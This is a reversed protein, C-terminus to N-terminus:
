HLTFRCALWRTWASGGGAEWSRVVVSCVRLVDMELRDKRVGTVNNRTRSEERNGKMSGVMPCWMGGRRDDNLISFRLSKTRMALASVGHNSWHHHSQWRGIDSGVRIKRGTQPLEVSSVLGKNPIHDTRELANIWRRPPYAALTALIELVRLDRALDHCLTRLSQVLMHCRWRLGLDRPGSVKGINQMNSPTMVTRSTLIAPSDESWNSEGGWVISEEWWRRLDSGPGAVKGWKEDYATSNAWVTLHHPPQVISIRVAQRGHRFHRNKRCEVGFLCNEIGFTPGWFWISWIAWNVM